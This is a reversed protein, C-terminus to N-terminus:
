HELDLITRAVVRAPLVYATEPNDVAFNPSHLDGTFGSVSFHLTPIVSSVYGLDTCYGGHPGYVVPVGLEESSHELYKALDANGRFPAYGEIIQIEAHAGIIAAAHEAVTRVRTSLQELLEPTKARLQVILECDDPVTSSNEGGNSIIYSLRIGEGDEFTERMAQLGDICIVAANLANIGAQPREGSHAAKGLFRCKVTTFGNCSTQIFIKEPIANGETYAHTSIVLDIGKFYGQRLLEKKGSAYVIRGEGQLREVLSQPLQEEAPLAIFVLNGHLCSQIEPHSFAEAVALLMTSQMHHGCVHAMGTEPDALPHMPCYVADLEALIAINPGPKGGKLVGICGSVPLMEVQIQGMAKLRDSVYATSKSECFGREPIRQLENGWSIYQDSREKLLSDVSDKLHELTRLQEINMRM